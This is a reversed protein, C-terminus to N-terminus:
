IRAYVFAYGNPIEGGTWRFHGHENVEGVPWQRDQCLAEVARGHNDYSAYSHDYAVYVRRGAASASVRSGRTNTPGHFKTIIAHM